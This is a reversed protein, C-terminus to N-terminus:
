LAAIVLHQNHQHIGDNSISLVHLVLVCICRISMVEPPGRTNLHPCVANSYPASLLHQDGDRPLHHIGPRGSSSRGVLIMSLINLKIFLVSSRKTYISVTTVSPCPDRFRRAGRRVAHMKLLHLPHVLYSTDSYLYGTRLAVRRFSSSGDRSFRELLLGSQFIHGSM